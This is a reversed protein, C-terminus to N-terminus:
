VVTFVVTKLVFVVSVNAKAFSFFFPKRTSMMMRISNDEQLLKELM